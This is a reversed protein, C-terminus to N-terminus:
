IARAHPKLVCDWKEEANLCITPSEGLHHRTCARMPRQVPPDSQMAFVYKPFNPNSGLATMRVAVGFTGQHGRGAWRSECRAVVM